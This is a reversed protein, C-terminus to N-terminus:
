TNLKMKKRYDFLADALGCISMIIMLGSMMTFVILVIGLGKQNRAEFVSHVFIIGQVIFLISLLMVINLIIVTLGTNTVFLAAVQAVLLTIALPKGLQFEKLSGTKPLEIAMRKLIMTSLKDSVVVQLLGILLLITPVLMQMMLKMQEILATTDVGEIPLSSFTSEMMTLTEMISDSMSIGSILQLSIPFLVGYSIAANLIRNWYPWNMHMGYALIVGMVGHLVTTMLGFISGILVSGICAGVFLWIVHRMQKNRMYYVVFPIPLIFSIVGPLIGINYLMFLVLYVALMMASSVLSKTDM